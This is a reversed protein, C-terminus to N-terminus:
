WVLGVLGFRGFCVQWVLGVLGLGDRFLSGYSREPQTSIAKLPSIKWYMDGTPPTNNCFGKKKTLFMVLLQGETM